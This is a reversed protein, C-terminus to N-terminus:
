EAAEMLWEGMRDAARKLAQPSRATYYRKTTALNAHGLQDQIDALETGQDRLLSAATHRLDHVSLPPLGLRKLLREFRRRVHAGTLPSGDENTFLLAEDRVAGLGLSAQRARHSRLAALAPPHLPLTRVASASKPPGTTADRDDRSRRVHLLERTFDVDGWQLGRLEGNRLGLTAALLWLAHLPDARAGELLTRTQEATLRAVAPPPNAPLEALTAENYDVLRLRRAHTLAIRLVATYVQVTGPALGQRELANVWSQIAEYDLEDLWTDGFAPILQASIVHRYLRSTNRSRRPEVVERLWWGLFEGTRRRRNRAM